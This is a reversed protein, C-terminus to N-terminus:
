RYFYRGWPLAEGTTTGQRDINKMQPLAEGTSIYRRQFQRILLVKEGTVAVWGCFHNVQPLEKSRPCHRM